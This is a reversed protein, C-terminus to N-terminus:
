KLYTILKDFKAQNSLNGDLWHITFGQKEMRRFWTMQRKSFQHIATELRRYMEAYGIEGTIFQTVFRYELGYFKLQDQTVGSSLLGQVEEIMGNKLRDELRESIRHRVVRRDFDLGFIVTEIQPFSVDLDPHEQYYTQIEIARIMRDRDSSDTTNHQAKLDELKAELENDALGALDERLEQNAPVNILKYGKLVSEIYMGTGGCLIPFTGNSEIKEYAKLFDHQFEYVNYEYGPDVIDILHYPIEVGDLQYETIDKGTGINMGRYVQRSDASIIEGNLQSAVYVAFNTKGTATPGLITIM